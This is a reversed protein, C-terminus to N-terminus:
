NLILALSAELSMSLVVLDPKASVKAEGTVTITRKMLFLGMKNIERKNYGMKTRNKEMLGPDPWPKFICAPWVIIEIILASVKFIVATM